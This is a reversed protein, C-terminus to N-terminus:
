CFRPISSESGNRELQSPNGQSKAKFNLRQFMTREPLIWTIYQTTGMGLLIKANKPDPIGFQVKMQWQQSPPCGLNGM